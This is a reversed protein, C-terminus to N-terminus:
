SLESLRQKIKELESKIEYNKKNEREKDEHEKIRKLQMERLKEPNIELRNSKEAKEEFIGKRQIKPLEEEINKISEKIILLNKKLRNKLIAGRKKIKSYAQMKKIIELLNTECLLLNKKTDVAENYNLGIHIINEQSEAM